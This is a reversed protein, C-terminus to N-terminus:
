PTEELWHDAFIALDLYNIIQDGADAVPSLNCMADWQADRDTLLWHDAFIALDLYNVIGDCTFDWPPCSNFSGNTLNTVEEQIGNCDIFFVNGLTLYNDPDTDVVRFKLLALIGTGEPAQDCDTYALANAINVTGAVNEVAQFGVTEGGNKKLLNEIGEFPNDEVGEIFEVRETDFSVEVQYTNLNTVGQAVVAIWAEDNQPVFITQEVDTSSVTDDYTRTSPDMDLSLAAYSTTTAPDGEGGDVRGNHNIDEEGDLLGDSDTDDDLPNTTTTTDLDPQFINTDTDPGIDNLTYGLETGDQIGDGDTDINCPDTEGPDVTGNHNTDEVGDPIGDNDTDANTPDTCTTNELSDPLGDNDTDIRVIITVSGTDNAINNDEPSSATRTATNTIEGALDVRATIHLTASNGNALAGIDWLGTASSYAGGSDDSLYTLGAPLKDTVQIGTADDPGNNTATITFTLHAGLLPNPNNVTKSVSVDVAPAVNLEINLEIAEQETVVVNPIIICQYGTKSCTIDHVGLGLAIGYSGDKGSETDSSVTSITASTIFAGTIMDTVKGYIGGKGEPIGIAYLYSNWYGFYITGDSGIAPSSSEIYNGTQYRWKLSGDPNIAYLYNDSSGVYITGDSGIAPSSDIFGGSLYRWKLSGDVNIAYLYNDDSGVYITGDSGIAPSSDIHNATQYRWKLSGDPNIAYLYNDDSGVYITGDSGIAPSSFIDGGTQYKWKLSGDPNIAYLYNDSSGVYITGHSGIAPSSSINDGTQYKWKLSGDPNISHLYNDSSGVYITGDSAIAPSSHIFSGTLYSWKLSGDPNISHLYNDSSGVYITGGSGIAPSSFIDGGTQYKWKLSGDPNIAHLYSDIAGGVYITGDSGIAPSSFIDGGKQYKWKLFPYDFGKNESKGTNLADHHFKPWPGNDLGSGNSTNPNPEGIDVRGNHNIDEQGDLLGDGDTDEDLSNTTTSPDLDPQFINTDTDPGIDNLTYGLETGDQIGDGDTDINCPDTEDEEVTGNHNADEVGDPIGDNDTDANTPETCTTNELSDPLGDTDSDLETVTKTVRNGSADYTYEEVLDNGYDAKTVRSLSDYTYQVTVAFVPISVFLCFLISIIFVAKIKRNM